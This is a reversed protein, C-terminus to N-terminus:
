LVEKFSAMVQASANQPPQSTLDWKAALMKQAQLTANTARSSCKAALRTSRRISASPSSHRKRRRLAAKILPTKLPVSVRKAFEAALSSPSAPLEKPSTLTTEFDSPSVVM